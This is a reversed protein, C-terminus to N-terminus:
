EVDLPIEIESLAKILEDPIIAETPVPDGREITYRNFREQKYLIVGTEDTIYISIPFDVKNPLDGLLIPEVPLEDFNKGLLRNFDKDFVSVAVKFREGIPQAILIEAASIAGPHRIAKISFTLRNGIVDLTSLKQLDTKSNITNVFNEKETIRILAKVPTHTSASVSKDSTSIAFPKHKFIEKMIKDAEASAKSDTSIKLGFNYIKAQEFALLEEKTALRSDDESSALKILEDAPICVTASFNYDKLISAAYNLTERDITEILLMVPIEPFPIGWAKYRSLKKPSIAEYGNVSLDSIQAHFLSQSIENSSTPLSVIKKYAIIPLEVDPLFFLARLKIGIVVIILGLSIYKAYYLLREKM